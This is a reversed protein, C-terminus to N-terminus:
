RKLFDLIDKTVKLQQKRRNVNTKHKTGLVFDKEMQPIQFLFLFHNADKYINMTSNRINKHLYYANLEKNVIEDKEGNLILIKSGDINKLGEKFFLFGGDEPKITLNKKNSVNFSDTFVDAYHEAVRTNILGRCPAMLIFKDFRIDKYNEYFPKYNAKKLMDNTIKDNLFDSTMFTSKTVKKIKHDVLGGALLLGTLGGISFGMFSINIVKRSIQIDDITKGMFIDLCKTIDNAFIWQEIYKIPERHGFSNGTRDIALIMYGKKILDKYLWKSSMISGGTGSTAVM